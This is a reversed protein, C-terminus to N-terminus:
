ATMAITKECFGISALAMKWEVAVKDLKMGFGATKKDLVDAVLEVQMWHREGASKGEAAKDLDVDKMNFVKPRIMALEWLPDSKDVDKKELVKILHIKRLLGAHMPELEQKKITEFPNMAPKTQNVQKSVTQSKTHEM